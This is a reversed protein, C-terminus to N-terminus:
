VSIMSGSESSSAYRSTDSLACKAPLAVRIAWSMRRRTELWNCIVTDAPTAGFLNRALIALSQFFGLPRNTM